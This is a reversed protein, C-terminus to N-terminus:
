PKRRLIGNPDTFYAGSPIDSPKTQPTVKFPSAMSGDGGMSASQSEAQTVSNIMEVERPTFYKAGGETNLIRQMSRRYQEELRNLNKILEEDDLSTDLSGLSSQLAELEQVAVQGLAGGTPSEDRMRQLRDFGINAKITTTLQDLTKASTGGVGRLIGGIFGTSLLPSNKAIEKARTIDELVTAGSTAEGATRAEQAEGAREMDAAAKSGPIPVFRIGMPSSPDPVIVQGNVVKYDEGNINVVSGGGGGSKMFDQFSGEFGQSKAFEFNKILATREDKGTATAMKLAGAIDGTGEAYRIAEAAQPTNLSKLYDLTRNKQATAKRESRREKMQASLVASLNPDPTLRMSNFAMALAAMTDPNGFLNGLLGRPQEPEQGASQAMAGQAIQDPTVTGGGKTSITPTQDQGLARNFKAVYGSGSTGLIDKRGAGSSMPQGTFWASAADQPNGYKQVYSGFEGQFVAEQAEPSALFEDPTMRRGVYKETWPGVNFDMVQYKGYARNGRRTVPGLASYGGSGASEISAIANAWDQMAM